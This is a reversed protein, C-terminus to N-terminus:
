RWGRSWSSWGWGSRPRSSWHRVAVPVRFVLHTLGVGSVAVEIGREFAGQVGGLDGRDAAQVFGEGGEFVAVGEVEVWGLVGLEEGEEGGGAGHVVGEFGGGVGAGEVGEQASR